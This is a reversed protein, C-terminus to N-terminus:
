LEVVWSQFSSTFQCTSHKYLTIFFYFFFFIRDRRSLSWVSRWEKEQLLHIWGSVLDSGAGAGVSRDSDQKKGVRADLPRLVSLHATMCTFPCLAQEVSVNKGYHKKLPEKLSKHHVVCSIKDGTRCCCFAVVHSTRGLLAGMVSSSVFLLPCTRANWYEGISSKKPGTYYM